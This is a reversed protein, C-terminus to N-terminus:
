SATLIPANWVDHREAEALVDLTRQRLHRAYQVPTRNLRASISPVEVSIPLDAPLDALYSTLRFAGTGPVGRELRAEYVLSEKDAPRTAPGDCLQLMPVLHAVDRIESSGAGFRAMHLTDLMVQCGVQEALYQAHPVSRCAMYSMPEVLCSLGEQRADDVLAQLRPLLRDTNDDDVAMTLTRAGLAGASRVAPLWDDRGIQGTMMIFEADHLRIDCQALAAQTAALLSSGLSLDFPTQAATVGRVRLGVFDYGAEAAVRVLTPPDLDIMSLPALGLERVGM